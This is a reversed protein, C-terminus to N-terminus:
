RAVQRIALQDAAAEPLNNVEVMVENRRMFPPMIPPNYLATHMEGVTEVSQSEVAKRLESMKGSFNKETWRGSYRLVAMLRGPVERIRVRPDTPKPATELTYKGPLMLAVSWGEPSMTQEIPLTMSIKESSKEANQNDGRIYSLLRNVGELGAEKYEGNHEIVVSESVFYSEYQRYEIDGDLYVLTYEPKEFGLALATQGTLLLAAIVMFLTTRLRKSQTQMIKEWKFFARKRTKQENLSHFHILSALDKHQLAIYLGSATGRL